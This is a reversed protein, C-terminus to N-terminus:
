MISLEVDEEENEQANFISTINLIKSKNLTTARWSATDNKMLSSVYFPYKM